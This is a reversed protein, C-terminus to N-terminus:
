TGPEALAKVSETLDIERQDGTPAPLVQLDTGGAEKYAAIRETVYGEPGCLSTLEVLEDPVLAAAEDRKGALSLDEIEEDEREFGYRCMVDYYFIRARPASTSPSRRDPDYPRRDPGM